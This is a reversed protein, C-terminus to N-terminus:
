MYRLTIIATVTGITRSSSSTTRIISGYYMHSLSVGFIIYLPPPVSFSLVIRQWARLSRGHPDQTSTYFTCYQVYLIIDIRYEVYSYGLLLWLISSLCLRTTLTWIWSWIEGRASGASHGVPYMRSFLLIKYWPWTSEYTAFSFIVLDIIAAWDNRMMWDCVM